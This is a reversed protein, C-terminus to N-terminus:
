ECEHQERGRREMVTHPPRGQTWPPRVAELGDVAGEFISVVVAAVVGVGAAAAEVAQMGPRMGAQMMTAAGARAGM